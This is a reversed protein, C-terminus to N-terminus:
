RVSKIRVFKTKPISSFVFRIIWWILRSTDWTKRKIKQRNFIESSIIWECFWLGNKTNRLSGFHFKKAYLHIIKGLQLHPPMNGTSDITEHSSPNWEVIVKSSLSSFGYNLLFIIVFTALEIWIFLEHRKEVSVYQGNEAFWYLLFRILINVVRQHALM